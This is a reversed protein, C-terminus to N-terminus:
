LLKHGHVYGEDRLIGHSMWMKFSRISRNVNMCSIGSARCFRADMDMTGRWRHWDSLIRMGSLLDSRQWIRTSWNTVMFQWDSAQLILLERIIQKLVRGLTADGKRDIFARALERMEHEAHYIREWTWEVEPNM